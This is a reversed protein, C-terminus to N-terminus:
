SHILTMILILCTSFNNSSCFHYIVFHTLSRDRCRSRTAQLSTDRGAPELRLEATVGWWISTCSNLSTWTQWELWTAAMSFFFFFFLYLSQLSFSSWFHCFLLINMFSHLRKRYFFSYLLVLLSMLVVFKTQSKGGPLGHGLGSWGSVLLIGQGHLVGDRTWSASRLLWCWLTFGPQTLKAITNEVAQLGVIWRM